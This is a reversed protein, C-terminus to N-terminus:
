TAEALRVNRSRPTAAALESGHTVQASGTGAEGASSSVRALWSRPPSRGLGRGLHRYRIWTVTRSRTSAAAPLLDADDRWSSRPRSSCRSFTEAVLPPDCEM